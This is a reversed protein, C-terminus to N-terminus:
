LCPSLTLSSNHDSSPLIPQPFGVIQNCSRKENKEKLPCRFSAKRIRRDPYGSKSVNSNDDRTKRM